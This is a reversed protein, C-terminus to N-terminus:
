TRMQKKKIRRARRESKATKWAQKRERILQIEREHAKVGEVDSVKERIIEAIALRDAKTWCNGYPNAESEIKVRVHKVPLVRFRLLFEYEDQLSPPDTMMELAWDHSSSSFSLLDLSRLGRMSM